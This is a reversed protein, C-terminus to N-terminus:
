DKRNGYITKIGELWIRVIRRLVEMSRLVTFCVMATIIMASWNLRALFDIM